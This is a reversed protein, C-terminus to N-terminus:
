YTPQLQWRSHGERAKRFIGKLDYESVDERVLDIERRRRVPADVSQWERFILWGLQSPAIAMKHKVGSEM